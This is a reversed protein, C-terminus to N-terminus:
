VRRHRSSEMFGKRPQRSLMNFGSTRERSVSESFAPLGDRGPQDTQQLPQTAGVGRQPTGGPFAAFWGGVGALVTGIAVTFPLPLIGLSGLAQDVQARIFSTCTECTTRFVVSYTGTAPVLFSVIAWHGVRTALTVEGGASERQIELDAPAGTVEIHFFLTDGARLEHEYYATPNEVTITSTYNTMPFRLQGYVVGGVALGIGVLLALAGLARRQEPNLKM